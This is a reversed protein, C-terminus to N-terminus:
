DEAVAVAVAVVDIADADGVDVAFAADVDVDVPVGFARPATWVGGSCAVFDAGAIRAVVENDCRASLTLLAGAPLATPLPACVSVDVGDDACLRFPLVATRAITATAADGEIDEDDVCAARVVHDGDVAAALDVAVAFARDAVDVVAGDVAVRACDRADVDVGLGGQVVISARRTRAPLAALSPTPPAIAEREVDIFDAPSRRGAADEVEVVFRNVGVALPLTIAFASDRGRPVVVADDVVLATNVQRSGHVVIAAARTETPLPAFLAGSPADPPPLLVTDCGCLALACLAVRKM